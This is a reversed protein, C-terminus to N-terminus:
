KNGSNSLGVPRAPNAQAKKVGNPNVLLGNIQAKQMKGSTNANLKKPVTTQEKNSGNPMVPHDNIQAHQRKGCSAADKAILQTTLTKRKVASGMNPQTKGSMVLKKM